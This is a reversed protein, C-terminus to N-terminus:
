RFREELRKQATHLLNHVDELTTDAHNNYDMLRHKSVRNGGVENLVERVAQLAPQRYHVNGSVEETAQMLACFLSWRQPNPPCIRDDNKNWTKVDALLEMSRNIIRLDDTTPPLQREISITLALTDGDLRVNLPFWGFPTEAIGRRIEFLTPDEPLSGEMDGIWNDGVNRLSATVRRPSGNCTFGPTVGDFDVALANVQCPVDCSGKFQLGSRQLSCTLADAESRSPAALLCVVFSITVILRKM